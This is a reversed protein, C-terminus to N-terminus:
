LYYDNLNGILSIQNQIEFSFGTVNTLCEGFSLIAVSEDLQLPDQASKDLESLSFYNFKSTISSM